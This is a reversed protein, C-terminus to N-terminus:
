IKKNMGYFSTLIVSYEKLRGMWKGGKRYESATGGDSNLNQRMSASLEQQHHPVEDECREMHGSRKQTLSLQLASVSGQLQHQDNRDSIYSSDQGFSEQHSSATNGPHMQMGSSQPVPENKEPRSQRYSSQWLPQTEGPLKQTDSHHLIPQANESKPEYSRQVAKTEGGYVLSHFM